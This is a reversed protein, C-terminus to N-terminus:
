TFIEIVNFAIQLVYVQSINGQNMLDFGKLDGFDEVSNTKDLSLHRIIHIKIYVNWVIHMYKLKVM